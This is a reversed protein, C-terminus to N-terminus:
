RLSFTVASKKDNRKMKTLKTQVTCQGLVFFFLDLYSSFFFVQANVSERMKRYVIPSQLTEWRQTFTTSLWISQVDYVTNFSNTRYLATLEAYSEFITVANRCVQVECHIVRSNIYVNSGSSNIVVFMYSACLNAGIMWIPACFFYCSLGHVVQM